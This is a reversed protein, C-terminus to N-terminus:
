FSGLLSVARLPFMYRVNRLLASYMGHGASKQLCFSLFDQKDGGLRMRMSTLDLQVAFSPWEKRFSSRAKIPEYTALPQFSVQGAEEQWSTSSSDEMLHSPTALTHPLRRRVGDLSKKQSLSRTNM